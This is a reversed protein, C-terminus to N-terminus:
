GDGMEALQHLLDRSQEDAPFFMEIKLDDLTLDVPTGFQAITSFLSLRMTGTNYITPIIPSLSTKENYPVKALHDAARDFAEVGGQAVSETRLRQAAHRAVEPWNEIVNPLTESVVLDLLSSGEVVGLLGFVITIFLLSRIKM